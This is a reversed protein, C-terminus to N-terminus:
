RLVEGYNRLQAIASDCEGQYGLILLYGELRNLLPNLNARAEEIRAEVSETPASDDLFPDAPQGDTGASEAVNGDDTIFLEGKLYKRVERGSLHHKAALDLVKVQEHPELKAVEKHTSFPVDKRRRTPPIAEAVWKYSALTDPKRTEAIAQLTQDEGFKAYGFVMLDGLWWNISEEIGQHVNLVQCFSEYTIDEPVNLSTTTRDIQEILQTM